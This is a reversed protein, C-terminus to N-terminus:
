KAVKIKIGVEATDAQVTFVASDFRSARLAPRAKNPVSWQEAPLGVVNTDARGNRNVDHSVAVAYHDNQGLPAQVGSVRIVVPAALSMAPAALWIAFLPNLSLASSRRTATQMTRNM